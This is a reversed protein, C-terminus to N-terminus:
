TMYKTESRSGNERMNYRNHTLKILIQQSVEPFSTSGCGTVAGSVRVFTFAEVLNFKEADFHYRDAMLLGNVVRYM